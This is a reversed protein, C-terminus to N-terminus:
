HHIVQVLHYWLMINGLFLSFMKTQTFSELINACPYFKGIIGKECYIKMMLHCTVIKINTWSVSSM